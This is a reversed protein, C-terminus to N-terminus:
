KKKQNNVFCWVDIFFYELRTEIQEGIHLVNDYFLGKLM